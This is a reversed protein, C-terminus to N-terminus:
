AWGDDDLLTRMASLQSVGGAFGGGVPNFVDLFFTENGEPRTDGLVEVAIVAQSEDPYLILTGVTALYDEGATASGDRTRYDVSLWDAAEDRVGHFQVLFYVLTTGSDGEAVQTQVQQPTQPADAYQARIAQDIWQQTQSIRQWFGIEGFSSNRLQDVDPSIAGKELRAVYSAVGALQGDIFAPGGSDGPAILGEASGAGSNWAAIFQGLADQAALGNDFDAVLIGNDPKWALSYRFAESLDNGLADFRNVAQYRVPASDGDAGFLGTGSAGYGVLTTLQGIEDSDRYLQYRDAAAVATQPLWILALDNNASVPDYDPHLQYSTSRLSSAGSTTEFHVTASSVLQGDAQRLLHAATLVAQGAYLLVGTGYYGDAVVRVVGDLGYGVPTRHQSLALSQAVVMCGGNFGNGASLFISRNFFLIPSM